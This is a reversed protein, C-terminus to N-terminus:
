WHIDGVLLRAKTNEKPEQARGTYAQSLPDSDTEMCTIMYGLLM